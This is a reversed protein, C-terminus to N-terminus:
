TLCNGVEREAEFLEAIVEGAEVPAKSLSFLRKQRILRRRLVPNKIDSPKAARVAVVRMLATEPGLNRLLALFRWWHLRKEGLDIGYESLFSAYILEEDEAFSILPEGDTAQPKTGGSFFNCLLLMAENIDAPRKGKYCLNIARVVAGMELLRAFELWVSFDTKVPYYVGAGIVGAPPECGIIRM